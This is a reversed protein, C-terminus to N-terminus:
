HCQDFFTLLFAPISEKLPEALQLPRLLLQLGFGADARSDGFGVVFGGGRQGAEGPVVGAQEVGDVM